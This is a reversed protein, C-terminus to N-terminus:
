HRVTDGMKRRRRKSLSIKRKKKRILRNLKKPVKKGTECGKKIHELDQLSFKIMRDNDKIKLRGAKVKRNTFM